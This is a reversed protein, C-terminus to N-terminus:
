SDEEQLLSAPAVDLAKALRAINDISVNRECREISGVYTRHLGALDALAEQSLNKEHRLNRINESLIRRALTGEGVEDM